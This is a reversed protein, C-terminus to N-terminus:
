QDIEQDTSQSASKPQVRITSAANRVLESKPAYPTHWRCMLRKYGISHAQPTFLGAGGELVHRFSPNRKVDPRNEMGSGILIGEADYLAQLDALTMRLLHGGAQYAELTQRTPASVDRGGLIWPYDGPRVGTHDNGYIANRQTMWSADPSGRGHLRIYIAEPKGPPGPEVNDLILASGPDGEVSLRLDTAQELKLPVLYISKPMFECYRTDGKAGAKSLLGLAIAGVGALATGEDRRNAGHMAAVSGGFVLVDGIVSKAQRIDELNNWRHDIAMQDVDCAPEARALQQLGKAVILPAIDHEQPQFRVLAQDPGYSIKTPGKGYDVILLTDYERASLTDVLQKLDPDIKLAAEFQGQSGASGSLDSGIAEMLFGLAFNTDVATYGRDLYREDKAAHRVLKEPSQDNGFDTLRFLSNAAAARANEWDDMMAYLTAVYHFTLAQEFPEGKWIRVGEHDLVAAITRDKNLGATSLLEFSRELATEAEQVDGDALAAMGLRTNNLITQEDNHLMADGRVAERAAAFDYRYYADITTVNRPPSQCGSAFLCALALAFPVSNLGMTAEDSWRKTAQSPETM